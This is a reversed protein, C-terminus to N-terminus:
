DAYSDRQSIELLYPAPSQHAPAAPPTEGDKLRLNFVLSVATARNETFLPSQYEVLALFEAGLMGRELLCEVPRTVIQTPLLAVPMCKSFRNRENYIKIRDTTPISKTAPSEMPYLWQKLNFDDMNNAFFPATKVEAQIAPSKGVNNITVALNVQIFPAVSKQANHYVVPNVEAPRVSIAVWPRQDAIFNDRNIQNAEIAAHAADTADDASARILRLQWYFLGLQFGGIIVLWFTFFGAADHTIWDRFGGKPAHEANETESQNSAQTQSPPGQTWPFSTLFPLGIIAWAVLGIVSFMIAKDAVDKPM